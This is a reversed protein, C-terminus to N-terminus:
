LLKSLSVNLLVADKVVSNERNDGSCFFWITESEDVEARKSYRHIIKTKM